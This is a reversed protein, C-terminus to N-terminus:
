IWNIHINSEKQIHSKSLVPSCCLNHRYHIVSTKKEFCPLPLSTPAKFLAKWAACLQLLSSSITKITQHTISKKSTASIHKSEAKNEENLRTFISLVSTEKDFPDPWSPLTEVPWIWVKWIIFPTHFSKGRRVQFGRNMLM